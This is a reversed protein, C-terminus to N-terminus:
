VPPYLARIADGDLGSPNLNPGIVSDNFRTMVNQKVGNVVKGGSTSQYMMISDWDFASSQQLTTMQPWPLFEAASFGRGQSFFLDTCLQDVPEGRNKFDDYDALNMCNFKLLPDERPPDSLRDPNWAYWRQHEHYLGFCHGLEHALNSAASGTGWDSSKDFNMLQWAKGQSDFGPKNYGISTAARKDTTLFVHMYNGARDVDKCLGAYSLSLSSRQPGGVLSNWKGWADNMIGEFDTDANDGELCWTVQSNPWGRRGSAGDPALYFSRKGHVHTEKLTWPPNLIEGALSLLPFTFLTATISTYLM